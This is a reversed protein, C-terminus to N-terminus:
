GGSTGRMGSQCTGTHRHPIQDLTCWGAIPAGLLLALGHALHPSYGLVAVEAVALSYWTVGGLTFVFWPAVRRFSLPSLPLVIRWIRDAKPNHIFWASVIAVTFRSAGWSPIGHLAAKYPGALVGLLVVFLTFPGSDVQREIYPGFIALAGLNGVFHSVSKAAWPSLAMPIPAFPSRPDVRFLSEMMGPGLALISVRQAGYVFILLVCLVVTAPTDDLKKQLAGRVWGAPSM